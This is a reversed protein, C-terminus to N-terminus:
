NNLIRKLKLKRKTQIYEEKSLYIYDIFIIGARDRKFKNETYEIKRGFIDNFMNELYEKDLTNRDKLKYKLEIHGIFEGTIIDNVIVDSSYIMPRSVFKWNRPKSSFQEKFKWYQYM